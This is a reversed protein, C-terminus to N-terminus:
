DTWFAEPTSGCAKVIAVLHATTPTRRGSEWYTVAAPSVGLARALAGKSLGAAERVRTIRAPIQAPPLSQCVIRILRLRKAPPQRRGAEWNAVAGATEVGVRRALEKQSLGVRLRQARIWAGVSQARDIVPM